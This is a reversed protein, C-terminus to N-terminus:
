RGFGPPLRSLRAWDRHTERYRKLSEWAKAFGPDNAAEEAMVEDTKRSLEELIPTSWYHLTVGDRRFAEMAATEYTEGKALNRVMNQRCAMRIILREEEAIENWREMNVIFEGISTPQHWGPFYYHKAVRFFGMRQDLVPLSFELGDLVGRELAPFIDGPALLQVSAGLKQVVKGGLGFYRLKRGRFQEVSDIPERFWGSAEPPAMSCPEVHVDHPAYLEQWIELGGGEFIWGLYEGIDPGFPVATFLSSAPIKGVWFGSASWGADVSGKSVADFVELPPVLKGPDFQRLTVRGRTARTVEEAFLLADEGRIPLTGPFISAMKWTRAAAEGPREATVADAGRSPTSGRGLLFGFGLGAALLLAAFLLRKGM